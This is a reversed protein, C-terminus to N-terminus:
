FAVGIQLKLLSLRPFYTIIKMTDDVDDKDKQNTARDLFVSKRSTVFLPQSWSIWDVSLTIHHDLNWRNGLGLNGGLSQIEVLDLSPYTGGTVGNILRDGLHLSFGFYSFGYSINFGSEGIGIRRIVSFRDDTMKGLDKVIFPISLDGKLYEIEWSRDSSQYLGATFGYKGPILLDLPAYNFLLFYDPTKVAQTDSLSEIPTEARATSALLCLFFVCWVKM